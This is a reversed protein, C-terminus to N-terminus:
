DRLHSAMQNWRRRQLGQCERRESIAHYLVNSIESVRVRVRVRVREREGCKSCVLLSKLFCFFHWLSADLVHFATEPACPWIKLSHYWTIPISESLNQSCIWFSEFFRDNETQVNGVQMLGAVEEIDLVKVIAKLAFISLTDSLVFKHSRLNPNQIVLVIADFLFCSSQSLHSSCRQTSPKPSSLKAGDGACSRM